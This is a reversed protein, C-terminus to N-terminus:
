VTDRWTFKLRPLYITGGPDSDGGDYFYTYDTIGIAPDINDFDYVNDIILCRWGGGFHNELFNGDRAEDGSTTSLKCVEKGNDTYTSYNTLLWDTWDPVEYDPNGLWGTWDDQQMVVIDAPYSGPYSNKVKMHIEVSGDVIEATAPISSFDFDLIVRRIFRTHDPNAYTHHARIEYKTRDLQNGLSSNRMGSWSQNITWVGCWGEYNGDSSEFNFDYSHRYNRFNLLSNKSGEYAPDFGDPHAAAFLAILDGQSGPIADEVDQMNFTSTDPVLGM